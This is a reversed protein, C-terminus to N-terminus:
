SQVPKITEKGDHEAPAKEPRRLRFQRVLGNYNTFCSQKVYSVESFQVANVSSAVMIGGHYSSSLAILNSSNSAKKDMM